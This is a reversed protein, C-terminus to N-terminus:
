EEKIYDDINIEEPEDPESTDPESSPESGASGLATMLKYNEAQLRQIENRQEELTGNIEAIAAESGSVADGFIGAITDAYDGIGEWEEHGRMEALVDDITM